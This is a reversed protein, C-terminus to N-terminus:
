VVCKIGREINQRLDEYIWLLKKEEIDWNYKNLVAKRGNQGMQKAEEPNELLYNIRDCIEEPDEENVCFGCGAEIVIERWLPFDSVVVPIEAEMYEFLKIPLSHYYNITNKLTCVGVACEKYLQQIEERSLIGKLFWNKNYTTGYEKILFQRYDEEIPGALYLERDLRMSYQVLTTIGRDETLGGAYCVIDKKEAIKM